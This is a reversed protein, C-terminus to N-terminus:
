AAKPQQCQHSSFIIAAAVGKREDEDNKRERAEERGVSAWM